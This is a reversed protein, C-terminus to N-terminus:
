EARKQQVISLVVWHKGEAAVCPQMPGRQQAAASAAAAAAAPELVAEIDAAAAVVATVKAAIDFEVLVAAWSSAEM